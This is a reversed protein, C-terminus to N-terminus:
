MENNKRRQWKHHYNWVYDVFADWVFCLQDYIDIKEKNGYHTDIYEQAFGKWDYDEMDTVDIRVNQRDRCGAWPNLWIRGDETREIVLEYECRSWYQYMMETRLSETFDEKTNCKKKMKKIVDERYKLVDYDRIVQLNVDFIKVKWSFTEIEKQM